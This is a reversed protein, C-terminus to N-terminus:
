IIWNKDKVLDHKWITITELCHPCPIEMRPTNERDESAKTFQEELRASITDINEQETGKAVKVFDPDLQIDPFFLERFDPNTFEKLELALESSWTAYESTRNDIIRFEKAKKAPMDTVIVPVETYGLEKLARYRTHGAIITMDKDVIIPNQYGFEEISAKVKQIAIDNKRPNRWYPILTEISVTKTENAMKTGEARFLSVLRM